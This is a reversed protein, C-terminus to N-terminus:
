RPFRRRRRNQADRAPVRSRRGSRKRQLLLEPCRTTRGFAVSGRARLCPGRPRAPPLAMTSGPRAPAGSGALRSRGLLLPFSPRGLGRGGRRVELGRRGSRARQAGPGMWVSEGVPGPQPAAAGQVRTMQVPGRERLSRGTSVQEHRGRCPGGESVSEEPERTHPPGRPAAPPTRGGARVAVGLVDRTERPRSSGAPLGKTAQLGGPSIYGPSRM